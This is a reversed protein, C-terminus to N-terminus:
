AAKEANVIEPTSWVWFAYAVTAIKSEHSPSWSCLLARTFRTAKDLDIGKCSEPITGGKFFLKQAADEFREPVKPLNRRDFYHSEHFGFAAELDSVDPIPYFTLGDRQATPLEKKAGM